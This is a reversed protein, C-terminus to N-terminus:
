LTAEPIAPKIDKGSTLMCMFSGNDLTVTYSMTEHNSWFTMVGLLQQGNQVFISGDGQIVPVEGYKKLVKIMEEKSDCMVFSQIPFGQQPLQPTEQATGMTTLGLFILIAAVVKMM